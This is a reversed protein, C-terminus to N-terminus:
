LLDGWDGQRLKNGQSKKKRCVSEGKRKKGKKTVVLAFALVRGGSKKEIERRTGELWRKKEAPEV